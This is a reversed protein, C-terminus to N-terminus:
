RLSENGCIQPMIGRNKALWQAVTESEFRVSCQEPTEASRCSNFCDVSLNPIGVQLTKVHVKNWDLYLRHEEKCTSLITQTIGRQVSDTASFCGAAMGPQAMALANFLCITLLLPLRSTM